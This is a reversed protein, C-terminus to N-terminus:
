RFPKAREHSLARMWAAVLRLRDNGLVIAEPLRELWDRAAVVRGAAVLGYLAQAIWAYATERREAALAHHAARELMGAAQLWEAARWHLACREAHPLAEFRRLLVDRWVAHMRLWDSGEAAHLAPTDNRLRELREGCDRRGTVAACLHPQLQELPAVATLFAVDEPDLRPLIVDALLTNLESAGTAVRRLAEGPDREKELDVLILQLGMPWGEILEHLRVVTDADVRNGCREQLLARTEEVRFTLDAVDFTVLQGHAVLDATPFPLRRRTGLILHVNPPLNYALYPLLGAGVAEPLQHVDDLVLVTPRAADALEGLLMAIAERPEVRLTHEVLRGPTPRGLATYTSLLLAELFRGADDNADLALWAVCAGAGLWERRFRALLSTKGYGEPAQVCILACERSAQFKRVLRERSIIWRRTRPPAIKITLLAAAGEKKLTSVM